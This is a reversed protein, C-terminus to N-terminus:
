GDEFDIVLAVNDERYTEGDPLGSARVRAPLAGCLYQLLDVFHCVEGVIRGGGVAADHVWHSAPIAGANVRCHLLLPEPRQPQTLLHTFTEPPQKASIIQSPSETGSSGKKM